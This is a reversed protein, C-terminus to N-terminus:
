SGNKIRVLRKFVSDVTYGTLFAVQPTALLPTGFAIVLVCIVMGIFSPISKLEPETIKHDEYAKMSWHLVAGVVFAIAVEVIMAGM